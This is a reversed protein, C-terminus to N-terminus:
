VIPINEPLPFLKTPKEELLENEKKEILTLKWLMLYINKNFNDKNM